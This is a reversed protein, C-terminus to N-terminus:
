ALASALAATDIYSDYSTIRGNEVRWRFMWAGSGTKGTKRSRGTYNGFSFVENGAAISEKVDFVVTEMTADLKSFFEVAGEPGTFSGGWPLTAPQHWPAGPAVLGIIYPIDGRQFATYVSDVIQLPSAIATANM